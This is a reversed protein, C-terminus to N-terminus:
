RAMTRHSLEFKWEFGAHENLISEICKRARLVSEDEDPGGKLIEVDFRPTGSVWVMEIANAVPGPAWSKPNKSIELPYADMLLRRNLTLLTDGKINRQSLLRQTEPRLSVDAFRGLDYIPPGEIIANLDQILNHKLLENSHSGVQYNTLLTLTTVSLADKIYSSIANTPQRLKNVFAPLDAISDASFLVRGFQPVLTIQLGWPADKIVTCKYQLNTAIDLTIDKAVIRFNEDIAENTKIHYNGLYLRGTSLCGSLMMLFLGLIIVHNLKMYM